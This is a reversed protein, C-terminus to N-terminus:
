ERLHKVPNVMAARMVQFIITVTALLLTLVGGIAFLSWQLTTHYAFGQMWEYMAWWTLPLAICVSILVLRFFDGSLLMTIREASAGMVKRVSIEKARRETIFAAMGILGLCSVLLAIVAFITMFSGAQKDSRYLQELHDDLFHWSFPQSTLKGKWVQEIEGMVETIRTMDLKVSLDTFYYEHLYTMCLPEVRQHLSSFNFDRTIGVITGITDAYSHGFPQGILGALSTDSADSYPLLAWAMTENIIYSNSNRDAGYTASLGRGALLPINYFSLYNYDVYLNACRFSDRGQSGQFIVENQELPTGLRRLAGTIDQVGPINRLQQILQEEAQRNADSVPIVVIGEKNFGLDYQQIFKFQRWASLAALSLGIAITFQVVVLTSRLPSRYGTWWKGKLATVPHIRAMTLSPLLGALLSTGVIIAVAIGIWSPEKLVSLNLERQMLRALLPLAVIIIIIAGIFALLVYIGTEALFRWVIARYGAGSTKRIGVEKARTLLRATHINIYNIIGLLLVFFAVATILPIYNGNFKQENLMDRAIDASYLHIDQVPQLFLSYGSRKGPPLHKQLLAPFQAQLAQVNTHPELAIYTFTWETEWNKNWDPRQVTSLSYLADLQIHSQTPLDPLIGTVTFNMTDRGEHRVTQGMPDNNGFLNRAMTQTLVISNPERLATTTNGSILQLGLLNMFSGDTGLLTGAAVRKGPSLLPVKMWYNVRTYNKIGPIEQQLVAALPFLSQATKEPPTHESKQLQACVRYVHPKYHRDYGREYQVFLLILLCVSMGCALGFLNIFAFGKSRWLNRIIIKFYNRFM